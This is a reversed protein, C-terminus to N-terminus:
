LHPTAPESPHPTTPEGHILPLQVGHILPLQGEHTSQHQEEVQSLTERRPSQAGHSLTQRNSRTQEMVLFNDQLKKNSKGCVAGITTVRDCYYIQLLPFQRHIVGYPQDSCHIVGM